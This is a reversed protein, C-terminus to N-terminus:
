WNIEKKKHFRLYDNTKSFPKSGFFGKNVSFPSPHASEIVLHNNRDIYKGKKQAYVGWLIFVINKKNQSILNIVRDTFIEWGIMRHSGPVGRRVTLISNLLLVGQQSWKTLNGKNQIEISLDSYLEKLINQLSPPIKIKNPVSFSLGHAQGDGHYPDQGIIVVNVDNFSCQNFGNFILNKPPYIIQSKYESIVFDALNLFYEKKFENELLNHWSKEINVKM